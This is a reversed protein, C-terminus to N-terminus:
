KSNLSMHTTLPLIEKSQYDRGVTVVGDQILKTFNLTGYIKFGHIMQRVIKGIYTGRNAFLDMQGSKFERAEKPKKLTLDMFENLDPAKNM